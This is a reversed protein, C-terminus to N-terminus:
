VTWGNCPEITLVKMTKAVYYKSIILILWVWVEETVILSPKRLLGMRWSWGLCLNYIGSWDGFVEDWWGMPVCQCRSRDCASPTWRLCICWDSLLYSVPSLIGEASALSRPLCHGQAASHPVPAWQSYNATLCLVHLKVSYGNPTILTNTADTHARGLARM